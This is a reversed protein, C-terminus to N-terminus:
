AEDKNVALVYGHGRRTHILPPLGSRDIKRRLYGIYVDIVNSGTEDAFDYCRERLEERTVVSGSRQALIELLAYERPTLDVAAGARCVTRAAPDLELDGITILPNKNGTARRTLARLRALLEEFAFPKVLYDDAGLDLHRVRDSVTDRATLVLVHVPNSAKRLLRLIESGDMGPLMLDLVIADYANHTAFWLGEDGDGSEDVAFGEDRLGLVLSRRLPAYDEIVLIRM